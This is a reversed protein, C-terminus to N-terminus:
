FRGLRCPRSRLMMVMGVITFVICSWAFDGNVTAAVLPIATSIGAGTLLSGVGFTALARDRYHATRLFRDALEVHKASVSDLGEREARGTAHEVVDGNYQELCKQLALQAAESLALRKSVAVNTVGSM